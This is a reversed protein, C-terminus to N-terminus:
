RDLLAALARRIQQLRNPAPRVEGYREWEYTTTVLEVTDAAEPAQLALRRQLQGTTESPRRASGQAAAWALLRQYAAWADVAGIETGARGGARAAGARGSGFAARLWRALWAWFAKADGRPTGSREVTVEPGPRNERALPAGIWNALLIRAIVIAVIGAAVILTIVMVMGIWATRDQMDALAAPDPAINPPVPLPRPPAVGTPTRPFLSALWAILLGIPTLLLEIIRALTLWLGGVLEPRLIGVLVVAAGAPVLATTTALTRGFRLSGVEAADQRSMATAVLGGVAVMGVSGGLLLPDALVFPRVFGLTALMAVAVVGFETRVDAPTLEAVCLAGGRWWLAVGVAAPM